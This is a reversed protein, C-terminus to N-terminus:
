VQSGKELLSWNLLSALWLFFYSWEFLHIFNLLWRNVPDGSYEGSAWFYNDAPMFFICVHLVLGLLMAIARVFDLGHYRENESM